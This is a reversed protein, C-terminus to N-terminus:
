QCHWIVAQIVEDADEAQGAITRGDDSVATAIVDLPDGHGALDPLVVPGNDSLFLGRGKQDSGVMWGHANAMDARIHFQPLTRVQATQVNWRVAVPQNLVPEVLGTVWGNRIAFARSVKATVGDVKPLPLEQPKGGPFWVFAREVEGGAGSRVLTGVVTGDDDIDYAAGTWGGAPLPLDVPDSMPSPWHVPLIRDTESDVRYGAIAGAENIAQAAGSPVGPLRSLESRRYLWPVVQGDVFSFGVAVGATSIDRFQADDGPIVVEHVTALNWIFTAHPTDGNRYSRGVIFRLTPDAGTVLSMPTDNPVPLRSIQCTTPPQPAPRVQSATPATSPSGSAASTVPAGAPKPTWDIAPVGLAAV